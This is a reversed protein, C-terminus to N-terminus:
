KIVGTLVGPNLWIVDFTSTIIIIIALFCFLLSYYKENIKNGNELVRTKFAYCLPVLILLALMCCLNIIITNLLSCSETISLLIILYSCTFESSKNGTIILVITQMLSNVCIFVLFIILPSLEVLRLPILIKQNIFWSLISTIFITLIAKTYFAFDLNKSIGLAAAKNIGIGYLLIVSAFFIYYAFTELIMM